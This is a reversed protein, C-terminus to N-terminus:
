KFCLLNIKVNVDSSSVKNEDDVCAENDVSVKSPELDASHGFVNGLVEFDFENKEGDM